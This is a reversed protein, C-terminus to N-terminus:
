SDAQEEFKSFNPESATRIVPTTTMSDDIDKVSVIGGNYFAFEEVDQLGSAQDELPGFNKYKGTKIIDMNKEEKNFDVYEKFSDNVISANM